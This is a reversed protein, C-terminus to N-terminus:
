LLCAGVYGVALFPVCAVKSKRHLKGSIMMGVSFIFIVTGSVALMRCCFNIGELLGIGGILFSDGAGICNGFLKGAFFSIAGPLWGLMWVADSIDGSLARAIIGAIILCVGPFFRIQQTKMDGYVPYLVLLISCIHKVTM